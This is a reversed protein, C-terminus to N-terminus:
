LQGSLTQHNDGYLGRARARAELLHTARQQEDSWGVTEPSAAISRGALISGRSAEALMNQQQEHWRGAMDDNDDDLSMPVKPTPTLIAENSRAGWITGGGPFTVMPVAFTGTGEPVDKPEKIEYEAGTAELICVAPFARATFGKCASHYYVVYPPMTVLV